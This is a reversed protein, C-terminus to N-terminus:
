LKGPKSLIQKTNVSFHKVTGRSLCSWSIGKVREFFLLSDFRKKALAQM